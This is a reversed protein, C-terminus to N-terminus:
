IDERRAMWRREQMLFFLARAQESFHHMTHSHYLSFEGPSSPCGERLGRVLHFPESVGGTTRTTYETMKHLGIMVRACRAPIGSRELVAGMAPRVVRPYAKRVDAMILALNKKTIDM